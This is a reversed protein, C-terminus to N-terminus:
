RYRYRIRNINNKLTTTFSVLIRCQKRHAVELGEIPDSAALGENTYCWQGRPALSLITSISPLICPSKNLSIPIIIPFNQPFYFYIIPFHHFLSVSYPRNFLSLSTLIILLRHNNPCDWIVFRRVFFIHSIISRGTEYCSSNRKQQLIWNKEWSIKDSNTSKGNL